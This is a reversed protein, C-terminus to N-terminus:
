FRYTLSLSVVPIVTYDELERELAREEEELAVKLAEELGPLIEDLDFDSRIGLEVDPEGQYFAGIEFSLKWRGGRFPNGWGLLVVPVLENGQATGVASGLPAWLSIDGPDRPVFRDFPATVEVETGNWGAGASLRFAGAGPYWDLLLLATTVEAEADYDLASTSITGDFGVTGAALRLHARDSLRGALDLGLGATGARVGAALRQQAAAPAAPFALCAAVAAPALAWRAVARFSGGRDIEAFSM